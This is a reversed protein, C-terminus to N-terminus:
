TGSDGPERRSAEHERTAKDNRARALEREAKSRGHEFRNREADAEKATRDRRKRAMRLNVVDGSM